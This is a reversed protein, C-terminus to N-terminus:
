IGIKNLISDIDWGSIAIFFDDVDENRLCLLLLQRAVKELSEDDNNIEDILVKGFQELLQNDNLVELIKNKDMKKTVFIISRAFVVLMILM